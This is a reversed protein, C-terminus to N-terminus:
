VTHVTCYSYRYHVSTSSDERPVGDIGRKTGIGDTSNRLVTAVRCDLTEREERYLFFISQNVFNSKVFVSKYWTGM